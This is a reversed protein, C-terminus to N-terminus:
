CKVSRCCFCCWCHPCCWYCNCICCSFCYWYCSVHLLLLMCAAAAIVAATSHYAAQLVSSCNCLRSIHIHDVAATVICYLEVVASYCQLLLVQSDVATNHQCKQDSTCQVSSNHAVARHPKCSHASTTYMIKHRDWWV